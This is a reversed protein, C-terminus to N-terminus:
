KAWVPMTNRGASTLRQLDSGDALMTWIQSTGSRTSAFVIHRGDPAWSPNENRGAGHTLQVVQRTTVDMLFINLNGPEFGRSWAFAIVQGNPHWSPNHAEGEGTTLREVAAGDMNMRYIQPLGSRDSVFVIENGKPSVRPSVEVAQYSSIRHLGSGDANASYIQAYGSATSSYLIKEGDPTFDPTANMSAVQNYFPLRRGTELSHVFIGPNGRAYTTFAIRKGDVSVAPTISISKYSTFQKQNSGDPDMSWIEKNGTRDSIFFVKSGILSTGGFQAIIDAAFEHAVKRAGEESVPGFYRKGLLHASQPNQQRVDYLWGSLVINENQAAAYGFALHTAQAPPDSWDTLWPGQRIPKGGRVGPLPPKFDQPQQPTELPYMTKAVMNFLGSGQLDSYLTENFANMFPQAAGAARFDPVALAPRDGKIIDIVVQGALLAALLPVALLIKKTM